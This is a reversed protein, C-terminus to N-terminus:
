LTIQGSTNQLFIKECRKRSSFRIVIATTFTNYQIFQNNLQNDISLRIQFPKIKLTQMHEPFCRVWYMTKCQSCLFFGNFQYDNQIKYEIYILDILDILHIKTQCYWYYPPFCRPNRSFPSTSRWSYTQCKLTIREIWNIFIQWIYHSFVISWIVVYM